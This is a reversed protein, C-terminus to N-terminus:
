RGVPSERNFGDDIIAQQMAEIETRDGEAAMAFSTDVLDVREAYRAANVAAAHAAPANLNFINGFRLGPHEKFGIDTLAEKTYLDLTRFVPIRGEHVVYKQMMEAPLRPIQNRPRDRERLDVPAPAAAPPAYAPMVSSM